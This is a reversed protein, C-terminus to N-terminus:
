LFAASLHKSSTWARQHLSPRVRGRLFGTFLFRLRSLINLINPTTILVVGDAKLVRAIERILQPQNEIHEIVEVLNIADFRGSKFPL